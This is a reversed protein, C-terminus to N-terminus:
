NIRPDTIQAQYGVIHTQPYRLPTTSKIFNLQVFSIQELKQSIPPTVVTCTIIYKLHIRLRVHEMKADQWCLVIMVDAVLPPGCTYFRKLGVRRKGFMKNMKLLMDTM